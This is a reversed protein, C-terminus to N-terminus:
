SVRGPKLKKALNAIARAQLMKVSGESKGTTAAAERISMGFGFRLAIINQQDETLKKVAEHLAQNNLNMDVAQEPQDALNPINEDLETQKARYHKRYYDSVVRSAVAFLWGRLTNSPATRDRLASLLRTFVESTLDEATEHDSVKMVIYRYLPVYYTDHIEALADQDLSRARHLLLLEDQV